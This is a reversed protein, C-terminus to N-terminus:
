APFSNKPPADTYRKPTIPMDKPVNGTRMRTLFIKGYEEDGNTNCFFSDMSQQKVAPLM